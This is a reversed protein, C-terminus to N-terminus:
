RLPSLAHSQFSLLFPLLNSINPVQWGKQIQKGSLTRFVCSSFYRSSRLCMKSRIKLVNSSGFSHQTQSRLDTHLIDLARKVSHLAPFTRPVPAHFLIWLRIWHNFKRHFWTRCTTSIGHSVAHFRIRTDRKVDKTGPDVAALKDVAFVAFVAFSIPDWLRPQKLCVLTFGVISSVPFLSPLSDLLFSCAIVCTESCIAMEHGPDISREKKNSRPPSLPNHQNHWAGKCRYQGEDCHKFLKSTLSLTNYQM